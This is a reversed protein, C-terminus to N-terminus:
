EDDYSSRTSRINGFAAAAAAVGDFSRKEGYLYEYLDELQWLPYDALNIVQAMMRACRRTSGCAMDSLYECGLMSSLDHFIDM